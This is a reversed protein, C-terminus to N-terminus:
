GKSNWFDWEVLAFRRSMRRKKRSHFRPVAVALLMVVVDNSLGLWDDM